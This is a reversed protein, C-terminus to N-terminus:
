KVLSQKLYSVKMEAEKTLEDIRKNILKNYETKLSKAKSEFFDAIKPYYKTNYNGKKDNYQLIGNRLAGILCNLKEVYNDYSNLNQGSLDIADLMQKFLQTNNKAGNIRNVLVGFNSSMNQHGIREAYSRNTFDVGCYECCYKDTRYLKM